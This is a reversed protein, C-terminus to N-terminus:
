GPLVGRWLTDITNGDRALFAVQFPPCGVRLLGGSFPLEPSNLDFRLQCLVSCRFCIGIGSCLDTLGVMAPMTKSIGDALPQAQVLSFREM